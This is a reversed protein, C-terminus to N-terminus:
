IFEREFPPPTYTVTGDRNLANIIAITNNNIDCVINSWSCVPLIPLLQSDCKWGIIATTIKNAISCFITDVGTAQISKSIIILISVLYIM